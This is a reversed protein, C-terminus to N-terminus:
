REVMGRMAQDLEPLSQWAERRMQRIFEHIDEDFWLLPSECVPRPFRKAPDKRWEFLASRGINLMLLVDNQKLLQM